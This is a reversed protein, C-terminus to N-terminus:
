EEWLIRCTISCVITQSGNPEKARVRNTPTIADGCAPCVTFRHGTARRRYLTDVGLCDACNTTPGHHADSTATGCPYHTTSTPASRTDLAIRALIAPM